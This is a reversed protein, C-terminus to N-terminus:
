SLVLVWILFMLVCGLSIFAILFKQETRVKKVLDPPLGADSLMKIRRYNWFLYIALIFPALAFKVPEAHPSDWIHPLLYFLAIFGFFIGILVKRYTSLTVYVQKQSPTLTAFRVLWALSNVRMFFGILGLSVILTFILSILIVQEM